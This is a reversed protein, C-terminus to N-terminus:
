SQHCLLGGKTALVAACILHVMYWAHMHMYIYMYWARTVHDLKLARARINAHVFLISWDIDIEFIPMTARQALVAVSLIVRTTTRGDTRLPPDASTFQGRSM